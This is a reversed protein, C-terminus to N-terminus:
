RMPFAEALNELGTKSSPISNGGDDSSLRKREAKAKGGKEEVNKLEVLQKKLNKLQSRWFEREQRIARFSKENIEHLESMLRVEELRGKTIEEALRGLEADTENRRAVILKRKTSLNSM